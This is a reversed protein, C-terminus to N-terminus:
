DGLPVKEAIFVPRANYHDLILYGLAAQALTDFFVFQKTKTKGSYTYKKRASEQPYSRSYVKEFNEWNKYSLLIGKQNDLMSLKAKTTLNQM